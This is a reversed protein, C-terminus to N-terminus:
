LAEIGEENLPEAILEREEFRAVAWEQPSTWVIRSPYGAWVNRALCDKWTGAARSLKRDAFEISYPDLGVLSLGYPPETELVAFVFKRDAPGLLAAAGRLALAGQLDFEYSQLQGRTWADPQASAGTTKLDVYVLSEDDCWDPRSRWTVGDADTWIMTREAHGGTFADPLESAAIQERAATMMAEVTTMEHPLVALKGEARIKDRAMWAVPGAGGDSKKSWSDANVVVLRSRDDELLMAHVITGLDTASTADPEWTDNLRPHGLRVHRPSKTLLTHALSASLSPGPTAPDKIYDLIPLGDIIGTM